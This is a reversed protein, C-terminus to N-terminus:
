KVVLSGHYMNMQCAFSYEGPKKPTLEIVKYQNLPLDEGINLDEFIVKEACPSADKRFFRLRTKEGASVEIRSPSYVGNDVIIDVVSNNSKQVQPKAIWFWWVIFIILFLGVSNVILTEM